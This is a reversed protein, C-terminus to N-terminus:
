TMVKFLKKRMEILIREYIYQKREDPISEWFAECEDNMEIKSRTNDMIQRYEIRFYVPRNDHVFYGSAKHVTIVGREIHTYIKNITATQM